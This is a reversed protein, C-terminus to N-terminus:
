NLQILQNCTKNCLNLQIVYWTLCVFNSQDLMFMSHAIIIYIRIRLMNWVVHKTSCSIEGRILIINCFKLSIIAVIWKKTCFEEAQVYSIWGIATKRNATCGLRVTWIKIQRCDLIKHFQIYFLYPKLMNRSKVVNKCQQTCHSYNEM